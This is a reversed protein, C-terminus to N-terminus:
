HSFLLYSFFESPLKPYGKFVSIKRATGAYTGTSSISQGQVPLNGTVGNVGIISSTYLPIVRMLLGSTVNISYTHAFTTGSIAGGAQPPSFSNAARRLACGDLNYHTITPVAKSGSILIVELAADTPSVTSCTGGPVGWFIKVTGTFPSAYTPYTSLWVDAGDDQTVPALNNIPFFAGSVVSSTASFISGNSLTTNSISTNTSNLIKEVGAEAASFARESSESEKTTRLTTVTRSVVSLGVTLAIVMVLVVILLMQGRQPNTPMHM